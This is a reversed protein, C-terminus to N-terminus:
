DFVVRGWRVQLVNNTVALKGFDGAGEGNWLVEGNLVYGWPILYKDLLYQLWEAYHYFKEGRDWGITTGDAAPVWQCYDGPYEPGTHAADAFQTLFAVQAATLPRDLHFEGAFKTDYGM